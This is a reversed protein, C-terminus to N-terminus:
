RVGVQLLRFALGTMAARRSEEPYSRFEDYGGLARDQEPALGGCAAPRTGDGERVLQSDVWAWREEGDAPVGGEDLPRGSADVRVYRRGTEIQGFLLGLPSTAGTTLSGMSLLTSLSGPEQDTEPFWDRLLDYLAGLLVVEALSFDERVYARGGRVVAQGGALLLAAGYDAVDAGLSECPDFPAVGGWREVREHVQRLLTFARRALLGDVDPCCARVGGDFALDYDLEGDRVTLALSSVPRGDSRVDRWLRGFFLANLQQNISRAGYNAALARQVLLDEADQDITMRAEGPLMRAYEAVKNRRVIQRLADEGLASLFRVTSLRGVLERPAGWAEIDDLTMQARLRAERASAEDAGSVPALFGMSGRSQGLRRAVVEEIGTFAGALVFVCRDCDLSFGPHDMGSGASELVGGELPKLLDFRASGERETQMLLKDVEDILVLANSGPNQELADALQAWEGSFTAGKYGAASMQSADISRFILGAARAFTKALHSKGSATPGVILASGMVPLDLTDVGEVKVLRTRACSADVFAALWEVAADQGIVTRRVEEVVQDISKDSGGYM